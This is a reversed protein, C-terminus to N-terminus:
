KRSSLFDVVVKQENHSTTDRARIHIETHTIDLVLEIARNLGDGGLQVTVEGLQHINDDTIYKEDKWFTSYILFTASPQNIESATFNMVFVKNTSIDQGRKVFAHFTNSKLPQDQMKDSGKFVVNCGKVGYTADAKRKAVIGPDCRFATAGRIVALEPEPPVPFHFGFGRFYTNIIRQLENRLYKCGGFGGVWCITDTTRAGKNEQLHSEILNVIGDIAPQFFEAMKSDNIRMVAGEDDVQVGEKSSLQQGRKLISDKYLRWFSHPFEFYYSNQGEGSGFRMKQSEFGTNGYLLRNLDAKHQTQEEVTGSQVYRSFKPDDVFKQLFKSFEENVTTGGCFNGASAAIEEIRSGVISHSAIDVTGGGIDIVIYSQPRMIYEPARGAETAKRQCHIAASEPEM